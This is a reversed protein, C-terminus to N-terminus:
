TNPTNYTDANDPKVDVPKLSLYQGENKYMLQNMLPILDDNFPYQDKQTNFTPLKSPTLFIGEVMGGEIMQNGYIETENGTILVRMQHLKNTSKHALANALDGRSKVIRYQCAGTASGIYFGSNLPSLIMLPPIIFTVMCNDIQADKKFELDYKNLWLPNLRKNQSYDQKIAMRSYKDILSTIYLSDWKSEDTMIGSNSLFRETSDIYEPLTM